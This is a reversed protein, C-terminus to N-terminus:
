VLVATVGLELLREVQGIVERQQEVLGIRKHLRREVLEVVEQQLLEHHGAM